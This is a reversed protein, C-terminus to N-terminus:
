YLSLLEKLDLEHDYFAKGIIAGETGISKLTDLHKKKGIGGSTYVKLPTMRLMRDVEDYNPGVQTSEKFMDKFLVFKVGYATLKEAFDIVRLPFPRKVSTLVEDGKAKIGIIIKDAGYTEIAEKYIPEASVGLVIRDIGADFLEKVKKMDRIKGACILEADVQSRIEKIVGENAADLDVIYITKAGKSVFLKAYDLPTKRFVEKQASNGKYFGVTQGEFIPIIPIIEM